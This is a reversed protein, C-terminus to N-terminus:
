LLAIFMYTYLSTVTKNHYIHVYFPVTSTLSISISVTKLVHTVSRFISISYIFFTICHSFCFLPFAYVRSVSRTDRYRHIYIHKLSHSRSISNLVYYRSATMLSRHIKIMSMTGGLNFSKSCALSRSRSLAIVLCFLLSLSLSLSFSLSLSLSLSLTLILSLSIGFLALFTLSLSPSRSIFHTQTHM